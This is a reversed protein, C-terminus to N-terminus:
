IELQYNAGKFIYNLYQPIVKTNEIGLMEILEKNFTEIPRYEGNKIFYIIMNHELNRTNLKELISIDVWYDIEYDNGLIKVGSFSYTKKLKLIRKLDTNIRTELVKKSPSKLNILLNNKLVYNLKFDSLNLAASYMNNNSRKSILTGRNEWDEIENAYLETILTTIKHFKFINQIIYNSYRNDSLELYYLYCRVDNPINFYDILQKNPYSEALKLNYYGILVNNFEIIFINDLDKINNIQIIEDEETAKRILLKESAKDMSKSQNIIEYRKIWLTIDSLSKGKIKEDVINITNGKEGEIKGEKDCRIFYLCENELVLKYFKSESQIEKFINGIEISKKYAMSLIKLCHKVEEM